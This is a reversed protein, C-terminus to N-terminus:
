RSQPRNANPSEASAEAAFEVISSTRLITLAESADGLDVLITGKEVALHVQQHATSGLVLRGAIPGTTAVSVGRRANVQSAAVASMSMGVFIVSLGLFCASASVGRVWAAIPLRLVLVIWLVAGVLGLADLGAAVRLDAAWPGIAELTWPLEGLLSQRTSSATWWLLGIANLGGLTAAVAGLVQEIRAPRPGGPAHTRTAALAGAPLAILAFALILHEPREIGATIVMGPMMLLSMTGAALGGIAGPLLEPVRVLPAFGLRFGLHGVTWIVILTGLGAIIGIALRLPLRDTADRPRVPHVPQRVLVVRPKSSGKARRRMLGATSSRSGTTSM